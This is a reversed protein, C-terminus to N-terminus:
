PCTVSEYAPEWKLKGMCQIPVKKKSNKCKLVLRDGSEVGINDRGDFDKVYVKAKLDITFLLCGVEKCIAPKESWQGNRRCEIMHPGDLKYSKNCSFSISVGPEYPPSSGTPIVTMKGNQLRPLNPCNARSVCETPISTDWKGNVCHVNYEKSQEPPKCGFRLSKGSLVRVPSSLVRDGTEYFVELNEPLNELVCVELKNSCLIKASRSWNNGGNCTITKDGVVTKQDNECKMNVTVGESIADSSKLLKGGNYIKVDGSIRDLNCANKIECYKGLNEPNCFCIAKGHALISCRGGGNCPDPSCPDNMNPMTTTRIMSPKSTIINSLEDGRECSKGNFPLRCHCIFDGDSGVRCNGRDNCPDPYCPGKKMSEKQCIYRRRIACGHDNWGTPSIEVCDRATGDRNPEHNNWLRQDRPIVTGDQFRWTNTDYIGNIWYNTAIGDVDLIQLIKEGLKRQVDRDTSKALISGVNACNMKAVDWSVKDTKFLYMIGNHDLELDKKNHVQSTGCDSNCVDEQWTEGKCDRSGAAGNKCSRTRVKKGPGCIVDCEWESWEQWMDHKEITIDISRGDSDKWQTKIGDPEIVNSYTRVEYQHSPKGLPISYGGIFWNRKNLGSHYEYFLYMDFDNEKRYIQRKEEFTLLGSVPKYVGEIKPLYNNRSTEVVYNNVNEKWKECIFRTKESCDDFRIQWAQTVWAQYRYYYKGCNNSTAGSLDFDIGHGREFKEGNSWLMNSDVNHLGIWYNAYNGWANDWLFDNVRKSQINALHGGDNECVRKAGEYNKPGSYQRFCSDVLEKYGDPCNKTRQSIKICEPPSSSLGKETCTARSNGRTRYGANCLYSITTGYRIKAPAKITGHPFSWPKSCVIEKECRRGKYFQTCSCYSEKIEDICQGDNMCPNENECPSVCEKKNLVIDDMSFGISGKAIIEFVIMNGGNPTLSKQFGVWRNAPVTVEGPAIGGVSKGNLEIYVDNNSGFQNKVMYYFQLCHTVKSPIVPSRLIANQLPSSQPQFKMIYGPLGSRSDSEFVRKWQVDGEDTYGCLERGSKDFDCNVDVECRPVEGWEGNEDCMGEDNGRIVYGQICTYKVRDEFEFGRANAEGNLPQKPAPCTKITCTPREGSWRGNTSCYLRYRRPNTIEYGKDCRYVAWSGFLFNEAEVYGNLPSGPDGCSVKKCLFTIPSWTRDSQCTVNENGSLTYGFRCEYTVIDGPQFASKDTNPFGISHRPPFSCANENVCKPPKGSWKRDSQCVTQEDGQLSFGDNCSYTAISGYVTSTYKVDGNDIKEPLTECEAEKNFCSMGCVNDCNCTKRKSKCDIDNKCSKRCSRTPPVKEAEYKCNTKDAAQIIWINVLIIFLELKFKM